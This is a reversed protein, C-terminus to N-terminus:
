IRLYSIERQFSKRIGRNIATVFNEKLIKKIKFLVAVFRIKRKLVVSM